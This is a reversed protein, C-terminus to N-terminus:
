ADEHRHRGRWIPVRALLRFDVARGAVSSLIAYLESMDAYGLKGALRQAEVHVPRTTSAPLGAKGFILCVALSIEMADSCLKHLQRPERWVKLDLAREVICADIRRQDIM